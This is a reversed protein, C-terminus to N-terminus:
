KTNFQRYETSRKQVVTETPEIALKEDLFIILFLM